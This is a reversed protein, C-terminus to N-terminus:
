TTTSSTTLEESELKDATETFNVVDSFFITLKKRFFRDGCKARRYLDFQLNRALPIEVAQHLAGRARQEEARHSRRPTSGGTTIDSLRMLRRTTRVTEPLEEPAAPYHQKDEANGFAGNAVLREGLAIVEEEAAFLDDGSM